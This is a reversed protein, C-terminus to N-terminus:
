NHHVENLLKQGLHFRIVEEVAEVEMRRRTDITGAGIHATLIVNDYNKLSGEYPENEFVDLAAGSLYKNKLALELDKENVLQGRSTNILYAGPKMKNITNCDILHKVNQSFSLNLSVIDSNGFLTDQDVYTFAHQKSFEHDEFIDNALIKAGFPELLKIVSKGIRGVGIIGITRNEILNGMYKNWIGSRLDNNVGIINRQGNIILGVVLEAVAKTPADPTYTVKIGNKETYDFPINDLGVGVRAILKLEKANELIDPSFQHLGAIIYDVDKINEKLDTDSIKKGFPNVVYEIGSKELLDFPESSVTGFPVTTIFVKAKKIKTM